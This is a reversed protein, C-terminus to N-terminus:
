IKIYNKVIGKLRFVSFLKQIFEDIKVEPFLNLFENDEIQLSSM